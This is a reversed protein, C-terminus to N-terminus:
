NLNGTKQLRSKLRDSHLSFHLPLNSKMKLGDGGDEDCVVLVVASELGKLYLLLQNGDQTMMHADFPVHPVYIFLKKVFLVFIKIMCFIIFLFHLYPKKMWGQLPNGVKVFRSNFKFNCIEANILGSYGVHIQVEHFQTLGIGVM